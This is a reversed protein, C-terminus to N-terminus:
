SPQFWSKFAPARLRSVAVEPPFNSKAQLQVLIKGNDSRKFGTVVQRHIIYQRSLRFFIETPLTKEIKDLSQALYFKNGSLQCAVAYDEDVFFGEFDDYNLRLEQKGQKVFLGDVKIQKEQQRQAETQQYLSYFYIGLYIGNVVFFWIGIIFLDFSYFDLPAMKGKAVLSTIETLVSIIFLGILLTGIVQVTIRKILGEKYPLKRDLYFIFARAGWWGFYGQVTDITFTLLLFGNLKINDYTLYYNIASIFPILILFIAVDPQYPNRNQQDSV